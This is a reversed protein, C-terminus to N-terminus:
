KIKVTGSGASPQASPAPSAPAPSSSIVRLDGTAPSAGEAGEAYGVYRLAWGVNRCHAFLKEWLKGKWGGLGPSADIIHGDTAVTVRAIFMSNSVRWIANPM